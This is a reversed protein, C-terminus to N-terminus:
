LIDTVSKLPAKLTEFSSFAIKEAQRAQKVSNNLMEFICSKLAIMGKDNKFPRICFAGLGPAIEHFEKQSNIRHGPYLFYVGGTGRIADKYAHMKVLDINEFIGRRNQIKEEDLHNKDQNIVDNIEAIKYNSEFHVYWILEQKEAESESIGFPWFSLTYNPRLMTTWSKLYSNENQFNFTRNYNFQFNMKRTKAVAVGKLATFRGQKIKLNISRGSKEFLTSSDQPEIEFIEEFLETLKFFLWYEYLVAVDKKGAGYVDEGGEWILKVALEFRLWTRLVEYYGEKRQLIPSNLKLSVPKSIESCNFHNLQSEIQNILIGSEFHLKSDGAATSNIESFVKLFTHLAHKVFRNEPTDVSDIKQVSTIRKTITELGFDRLHHGRPIKIREGGRVLEKLNSNSFKRSSRLDKPEYVQSWRAIPTTLIKHIAGTFETSSIISKIFSFMQYLKQSDKPLELDFHHIVPSNFELLYDACKETIFELMEGYDELYESKVSQVELCISAIRKREDTKFVPIELTGVFTNPSITGINHKLQHRYIINSGVDGLIFNDDSIAYDYFCGEILQFRPENNDILTDVADFLTGKIKPRIWIKLGKKLSNLNIEIESEVKM